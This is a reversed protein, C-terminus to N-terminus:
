HAINRRHSRDQHSTHAGCASPITRGHFNMLTRGESNGVGQAKDTHEDFAMDGINNGTDGIGAFLLLEEEDWSLPMPPQQSCFHLPGHSISMGAAFRRSRRNMLAEVLPYDAVKHLSAPLSPNKM